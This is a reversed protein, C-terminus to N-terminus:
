YRVLARTPCVPACYGCTLCKSQDIEALGNENYFIAEAPCANKCNGCGECDSQEVIMRKKSIDPNYDAPMKGEVYDFLDDVDQISGFGIMCSHIEPKELIYKLAQQYNDTLVGGGFAKMAFIGKGARHCAKISEMMEQATGTGTGKRIGLGAYNILPFVIECDPVEAMAAAVDVHHTSIGIVKVLGKAKADHLCQWAAEKEAFRGPRVEHLLFIDIVDRDMDRRAEEIAEAMSKYDDKLCKSSIVPEFNTGKLAERIYPSTQYYQATDIFNIERELAHRIIAAGESVPLSRQNPGIPLVGMGVPSVELQTNGLLIKKM